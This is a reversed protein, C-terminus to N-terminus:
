LRQVTVMIFNVKYHNSYLSQLQIGPFQREKQIQELKPQPLRGISHYRWNEQGSLIIVPNDDAVLINQGADQWRKEWKSLKLKVVVVGLITGEDDNVPETIFLGPIGTTVGIAYYFQRKRQSIANAFYPRFSYNRHLYSSQQDFNNTAIVTGSTNMIYVADLGSRQVIFKLRQNLESPERGADSLALKVRKDHALLAPLYEYQNISSHFSQQFFRTSAQKQLKWSYLQGLYFIASSLLAPILVLLFFPLFKIRSLIIM